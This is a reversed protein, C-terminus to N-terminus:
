VIKQALLVREKNPKQIRIEAYDEAGVLKLSALVPASEFMYNRCEGKCSTSAKVFRTYESIMTSCQADKLLASKKIAKEINAASKQFM